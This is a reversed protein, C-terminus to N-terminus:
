NRQVESGKLCKKLILWNLIYVILAIASYFFTAFFSLSFEGKWFGNQKKFIFMKELLGSYTYSAYIVFVVAPLLWAFRKTKYAIRNTCIIAAVYCFCAYLFFNDVKKELQLLKENASVPLDFVAMYNNYLLKIIVFLSLLLLYPWGNDVISRVSFLNKKMTNIM